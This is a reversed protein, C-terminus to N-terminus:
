KKVNFNSTLCYNILNTSPFLKLNINQNIYIHTNEFKNLNLRLPRLDGIKKRYKRYTKFKYIQIQTQLNKLYMKDDILM